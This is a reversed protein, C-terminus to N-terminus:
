IFNFKFYPFYRDAAEMWRGGDAGIQMSLRNSDRSFRSSPFGASSQSSSQQQQSQSSNNSNSNSNLQSGSKLRSGSNRLTVGDSSLQHFESSNGINQSMTTMQEDQQIMVKTSYNQYNKTMESNNDM